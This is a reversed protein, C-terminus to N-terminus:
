RITYGGDVALYQGTTWAADDCALYVAAEGIEEVRGSRAIPHMNRRKQLTAEPDPERGIMELSLETEIFGPCLANARVGKDALDLAMARIMGIVGAKSACYAIRQYQGVVGYMSAIAIISGKGNAVLHPAGHRSCLFTSLLNAECVQRFGELTEDLISGVSSAGASIVLTDLGGMFEVARETVRKVEPEKTADGAAFGARAIKSLGAVAEVLREERRGSIFVSAGQLAMREACAYGLGTGGGYILARKGQLRGSM